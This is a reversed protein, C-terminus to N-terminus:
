RPVLRTVHVNSGFDQNFDAQMRERLAKAIAQDDTTPGRTVLWLRAAHPVHSPLDSPSVIQGTFHRFWTEGDTTGLVTMGNHAVSYRDLLIQTAGTNLYLVDGPRLNADLTAAAARWDENPRAAYVNGLAALQVAVLGLAALAAARRLWLCGLAVLVMFVPLLWFLTKGNTLPRWQSILWTLAPIGAIVLVALAPVVRNTRNRWVGIAALLLFIWDVLPQGARLYRQGYNNMAEYRIYQLTPAQIWSGALGSVSQNFVVPIWPAYALLAVANALLWRWAFGRDRRLSSNWVWLTVLNLVLVLLVATNHAYLAVLVALVYGGWALRTGWLARRRPHTDDRLLRVLCSIAVLAALALLTYTRGLQSMVVHEPSTAVLAAAAFGAVRGGLMRALVFAVPICLVGFLVAPLRVAEPPAGAARVLHAIAYFLPPNPELRAPPGWLDAWPLGAFYLTAGEDFHLPAAMLGHLRLVAGIIVIASLLM